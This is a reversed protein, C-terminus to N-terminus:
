GYVAGDAALLYRLLLQDCVLQLVGLLCADPHALNLKPLLKIEGNGLKRMQLAFDGMVRVRSM